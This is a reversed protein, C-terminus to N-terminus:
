TAPHSLRGEILCASGDTPTISDVEFGAAAFLSRFQSACREAGGTMLWVNIDDFSLALDLPDREEPMVKELVVLRSAPRMARGCIRLVDAAKTDDWDHLVRSLLYVDAGTPVSVFFNGIEFTCRLSVGAQALYRKAAPAAFELDFVVIELHPWAKSIAAAIGGSGGGVDILRRATSLDLYPVVRAAEREANRTMQREFVAYREPDTRFLEFPSEAQTAFTPQGSRLAESLSLWAPMGEIACMRASADLSFPHERHLVEGLETITWTQQDEAVIGLAELLRLFRRLHDARIGTRDRISRQTAGSRGVAQILNMDVAAFVACSVSFATLM